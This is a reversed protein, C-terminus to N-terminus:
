KWNKGRVINGIMVNSVGYRKGLGVTGNNKDGRKYLARIEAVDNKSLKASPNDEGTCKRLGTKISHQINDSQTCWELNNASNNKKNGDIHNVQPLNKPNPVFADAVLRNIRVLRTNNKGNCLHVYYYGSQMEVAKLKRSGNRVSLVDGSDSVKYLGEWGHVDKIM